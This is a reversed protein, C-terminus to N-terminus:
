SVGLKKLAQVTTASVNQDLDILAKNLPGVAKKNVLKGLAEAADSRVGSNSDNLQRIYWSVPFFKKWLKFFLWIGLGAAVVGIGLALWPNVSIWEMIGTGFAAPTSVMLLPAFASDISQASDGKLIGLIEDILADAKLIYEPNTRPEEGQQYIIYEGSSITKRFAKIKDLTTGPDLLHDRDIKSLAMVLLQWWNGQVKHTLKGHIMTDPIDNSYNYRLDTLDEIIDAKAKEIALISESDQDRTGKLSGNNRQSPFSSDTDAQPAATAEALQEKLVRLVEEILADTKTIFEPRTLSTGDEGVVEIEDEDMEIFENIRDLTAHPITIETIEILNVLAYYVGSGWNGQVKHTLKGRIITPPIDNSYDNLYETLEKIYKKIYGIRAEEQEPRYGIHQGFGM